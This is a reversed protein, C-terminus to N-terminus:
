KLKVEEKLQIFQGSSLIQRSYVTYQYEIPKDEFSM